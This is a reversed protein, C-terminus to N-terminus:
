IGDLILNKILIDQQDLFKREIQPSRKSMDSYYSRTKPCFRAFLSLFSSDQLMMMAMMLVM